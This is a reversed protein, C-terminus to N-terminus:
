RRRRGTVITDPRRSRTRRDRAAIWEADGAITVSQLVAASKDIGADSGSQDRKRVGGHHEDDRGGSGDGNGDRNGHDDSGRHEVIDM